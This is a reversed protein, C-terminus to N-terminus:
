YCSVSNWVRDTAELAGRLPQV